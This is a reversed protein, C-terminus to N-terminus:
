VLLCCVAARGYYGIFCRERKRSIMQVKKESIGNMGKAQSLAYIVRFNIRSESNDGRMAEMKENYHFCDLFSLVTSSHLCGIQLGIM